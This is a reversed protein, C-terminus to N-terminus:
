CIERPTYQGEISDRVPSRAYRKFITVVSVERKVGVGHDFNEVLLLNAIVLPNDRSHTNSNVRITWFAAACTSIM